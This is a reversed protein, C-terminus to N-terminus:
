VACIIPLKVCESVAFHIFYLLLTHKLECHLLQVQPIKAFHTRMAELFGCCTIRNDDICCPKISIKNGNGHFFWPHEPPNIGKSNSHLEGTYRWLIATVTVDSWQKVVSSIVHHKAVGLQFSM